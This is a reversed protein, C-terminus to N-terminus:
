QSDKLQGRRDMSCKKGLIYRLILIYM